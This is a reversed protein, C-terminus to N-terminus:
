MNRRLEIENCLSSPLSNWEFLLSVCHDFEAREMARVDSNLKIPLPITIDKVQPKPILQLIWPLINM